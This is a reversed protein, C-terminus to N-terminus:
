GSENRPLVMRPVFEFVPLDAGVEFVLVRQKTTDALRSYSGTDGVEAKSDVYFVHDDPKSYSRERVPGPTLLTLNPSSLLETLETRRTVHIVTLFAPGTWDVRHYERAGLANPEIRFWEGANSHTEASYEQNEEWLTWLGLREQCTQLEAKVTEMEVYCGFVLADFELPGEVGVLRDNEIRLRFGREDSWDYDFGCNPCPEPVCDVLVLPQRPDGEDNGGWKLLDGTRYTYQWKDAFKFQFGREVHQDCGFCRDNTVFTNFAGV